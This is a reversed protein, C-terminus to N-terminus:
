ASRKRGGELAKTFDGGVIDDIGIIEVHDGGPQSAFADQVAAVKASRATRFISM